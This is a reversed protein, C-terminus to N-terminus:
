PKSILSQLIPITNFLAHIFIPRWLSGSKEYAYGMGVALIFLVPWHEPNQHVMAFLVSTLFVAPWPKDLISRITTQLLGRFLLEETVPVIGVALVVISIQLAPQTYNTLLELEKHRGMEYTPGYRYEGIRLVVLFVASILPWIALLNVLSAGLDRPISHLRLGLGKLGRAFTIRAIGLIVFITMVAAGGMILNDVLAIRWPAWDRVLPNLASQILSPTMMSVMLALMVGGAALPQRNRRVPANLLATRGLSTRLLWVAWLILGPLYVWNAPDMIQTGHKVLESQSM